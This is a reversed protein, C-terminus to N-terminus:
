SANAETESEVRGTSAIRIVTSQGSDSATATFHGNSSLAFGNADFTIRNESRNFAIAVNGDLAGHVNLTNDESPTESGPDPAYVIWGNQWGSQASCSEQNSSPCIFVTRGRTVAQSRAYNLAGVLDNVSAAMANRQIMSRYSPVAIGILVAAVALAVILELLTFGAQRQFADYTSVPKDGM